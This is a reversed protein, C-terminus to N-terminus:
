RMNVSGILMKDITGDTCQIVVNIVSIKSSDIQVEGAFYALFLTVLDSFSRFVGAVTFVPCVMM